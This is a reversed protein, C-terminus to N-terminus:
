TSPIMIRVKACSSTSSSARKAEMGTMLPSVSRSCGQWIMASRSVMCSFKSTSRLSSLTAQIPSPFLM